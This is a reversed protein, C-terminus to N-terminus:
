GVAAGESESALVVSLTHRAVMLNENTPVVRVACAAEEASIRDGRTGPTFGVGLHELGSCIESRVEPSHEGIAGTFVLLDLGGLAAALAGIACRIRYCFMAVAERAAPDHARRELLTRMEASSGSVGLLGAEQDVLRALRALDFGKERLLFLLIGPDLDAVRRM